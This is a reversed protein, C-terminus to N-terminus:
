LGNNNLHVFSSGVSSMLNGREGNGHRTCGVGLCPVSTDYLECGILHLLVATLFICRSMVSSGNEFNDDRSNRTVM